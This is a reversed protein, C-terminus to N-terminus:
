KFLGKTFKYINTNKNKIIKIEKVGFKSSKFNIVKALVRQYKSIKVIRIQCQYYLMVQLSEKKKSAIFTSLKM